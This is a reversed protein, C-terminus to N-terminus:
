NIGNARQIERLYVIIPGLEEDTIGVVPPMNGFRWHHATVGNRAAAVFAGDPHHGARYLAHILTPGNPTGAANVGHCAACSENFFAEGQQAMASFQPVIIADAALGAQTDAGNHMASTVPTAQGGPEPMSLWVFGGALLLGVVGTGILFKSAM